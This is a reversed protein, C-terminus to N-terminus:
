VRPEHQADVVRAKPPAISPFNPPLQSRMAIGSPEEAIEDAAREMVVVVRERLLHRLM